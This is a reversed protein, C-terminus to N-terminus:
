ASIRVATGSPMMPTKTEETNWTGVLARLDKMEAAPKPMASGSAAKESREQRASRRFLHAADSHVANAIGEHNV